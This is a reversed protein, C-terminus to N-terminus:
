QCAECTGDTVDCAKSGALFDQDDPQVAKFCEAHMVGHVSHTENTPIGCRACPRTPIPPNM